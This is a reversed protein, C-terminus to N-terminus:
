KHRDLKIVEIVAGNNLEESALPKPQEAKKEDDLALSRAAFSTLSFVAVFALVFTCTRQMAQEKWFRINLFADASWSPKGRGGRPPMHSTKDADGPRPLQSKPPM